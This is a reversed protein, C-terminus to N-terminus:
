HPKAPFTVEGQQKKQKKKLTIMKHKIQQETKKVNGDAGETSLYRVHATVVNFSAIALRHMHLCSGLFVSTKWMAYQLYCLYRQLYLIINM